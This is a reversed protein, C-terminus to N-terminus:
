WSLGSYGEVTTLDVFWVQINLDLSYVIGEVLVMDIEEQSFNEWNSIEKECTKLFFDEEEDRRDGIHLYEPINNEVKVTLFLNHEKPEHDTLSM